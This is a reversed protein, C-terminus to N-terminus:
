ALMRPLLLSVTFRYIKGNLDSSIMEGDKVVLPRYKAKEKRTDIELDLSKIFENFLPNPDM